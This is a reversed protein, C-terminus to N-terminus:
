LVRHRSPDEGLPAFSLERALSVRLWYSRAVVQDFEGSAVRNLLEALSERTAHHVFEGGLVRVNPGYQCYGM